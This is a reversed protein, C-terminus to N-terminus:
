PTVALSDLVARALQEDGEIDVEVRDPTRRGGALVVYAEPTLTIRAHPDDLDAAVARGDDGIAAGVQMHMEPVAVVVGTGVPPRVRKGLVMPLSGGFRTVVFTASPSDYGGPRGLARRIDQEHMWVDVPRNGLLTETSWPVGGPTKPAPLSGDTPPNALLDAHRRAVADELEDALEALSRGRRALVGQETYFGTATKIHPAPTVEVTDEPAGALVAELHATHAVNDQVDWGDLDTVLHAADEPIARALAVFDDCAQKWIEVYSALRDQDSM